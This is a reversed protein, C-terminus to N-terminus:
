APVPVGGGSPVGAEAGGSSLSERAWRWWKEADAAADGIAVPPAFEVNVEIVPERLVQLLHTVLGDEGLFACRRLPRYTIRFPQVKIGHQQAIEFPGRRWPLDETLSTTGSPFVCVSRHGRNCAEAISVATEKRSDRCERRVFIIGVSRCADGIIPWSALEKKAVFVTPLISMLVPIDLYSMHNGLLLVPTQSPPEGSLRLKIRLTELNKRAWEVMLPNLIEPSDPAIKRARRAYRITDMFINIFRGIVSISFMTM